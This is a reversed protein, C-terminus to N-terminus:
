THLSGADKPQETTGRGILVSRGPSVVLHTRADVGEAAGNNVSRVRLLALCMLSTVMGLMLLLSFTLLITPLTLM